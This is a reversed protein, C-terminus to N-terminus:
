HDDLVRREEHAFVHECLHQSRHKIYIEFMVLMIKRKVVIQRPLVCPIYKSKIIPIHLRGLNLISCNFETQHAISLKSSFVTSIHTWPAHVEKLAM